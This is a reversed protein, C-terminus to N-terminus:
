MFTYSPLFYGPHPNPSSLGVCGLGFLNIIPACRGSPKCLGSVLIQFRGRWQLPLISGSDIGNLSWLIPQTIPNSIEPCHSHSLIASKLVFAPSVIFNLKQLCVSRPTFNWRNRVKEISSDSKDNFELTWFWGFNLNIDKM